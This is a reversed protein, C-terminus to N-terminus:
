VLLSVLGGGLDGSAQGIQRDMEAVAKDLDRAEQPSLADDDGAKAKETAARVLAKLEAAMKRVDAMFERDARQEGSRRSLDAAQAQQEDIVSQYPNASKGTDETKGATQDTSAQEV